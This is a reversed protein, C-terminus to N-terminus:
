AIRQGVIEFGTQVLCNPDYNELEFLISPTLLERGRHTVSYSLVHIDERVQLAALDYQDLLLGNIHRKSLMANIYKEAPEGMDEQIREAAGTATAYHLIQEPSKRLHIWPFEEFYNFMHHGFASHYLPEARIYFYGGIKLLRIMESLVESPNSIHEFTAISYVIDFSHDPFPLSQANRCLYEIKSNPFNYGVNPLIDVGVVKKAGLNAIYECVLGDGCGVELAICKEPPPIHKFMCTLFRKNYTLRHANEGILSHRTGAETLIDVTPAIMTAAREIAHHFWRGKISIPLVVQDFTGNKLKQIVDEDVGAVMSEALSQLPQAVIITEGIMDHRADQQEILLTFREGPKASALLMDLQDADTIGFVLTKLQKGQDIHKFHDIELKLQSISHANLCLSYNGRLFDGYIFPKESVKIAFYTHEFCWVSFEEIGPSLEIPDKSDISIKVDDESLGWFIDGDSGDTCPQPRAFFTSDCQFLSFGKYNKNIVITQGNTSPMGTLAPLKYDGVTQRHSIRILTKLENMSDAELIDCMNEVFSIKTNLKEFSQPIGWLKSMYSLINYEYYGNEVSTINHPDPLQAVGNSLCTVFNDRLRHTDWVPHDSPCAYQKEQHVKAVSEGCHHAFCEMLMSLRSADANTTEGIFKQRTLINQKAYDILAPYANLKEALKLAKPRINDLPLDVKLIFDVEDKLALDSIIDPDHSWVTSQMRHWRGSNCWNQVFAARQQEFQEHDHALSQGGTYTLLVEPTCVVRYGAEWVSFGYAIDFFYNQYVEEFKINGIKILDLLMVRGNISQVARPQSYEELIPTYNASKDPNMMIGAYSLQGQKNKHCPTVLATENDICKLLGNLWNEEVLVHDDMLVLYDTRCMDMLQNIEQSYNFNNSTNSDIVVLDFNSTYSKLREICRQTRTSAMNASVVGVTVRTKVSSLTAEIGLHRMYEPKRLGSWDTLPAVRRVWIGENAQTRRSLIHNMLKGVLRAREDQLSEFLVTDIKQFEEIPQYTKFGTVGNVCNLHEFIVDPMYIIRRQGLTGLLDFVNFIHDDIRYRLYGEPCLGGALDCFIRSLIPFTCLREQFLKDNTHILFIGDPISDIIARIKIDWEPTRALVDDNLGFIYDGVTECFGATVICSMSQGAPVVVVRTNLKPYRYAITDPDDSDAVIIIEIDEPYATTDYLSDLCQTLM